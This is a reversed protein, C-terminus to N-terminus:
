PAGKGKALNGTEPSTSAEARPVKIALWELGFCYVTLVGIVLSEFLASSRDLGDESLIKGVLDTAVMAILLGVVLAKIGLLDAKAREDDEKDMWAKVYRALNVLVLFALPALLLLEVGRIVQHAPQESFMAASPHALNRVASVLGSYVGKFITLLGTLVLFGLALAALVSGGFLMRRICEELTKWAAGVGNHHNQHGAQSSKAM